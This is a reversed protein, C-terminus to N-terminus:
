CFLHWLAQHLLYPLHRTDTLSCLKIHFYPLTQAKASTNARSLAMRPLENRSQGTYHKMSYTKNQVNVAHPGAYKSDM